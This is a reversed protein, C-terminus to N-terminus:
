YLGSMTHFTSHVLIALLFMAASASILITDRRSRASGQPLRKSLLQWLIIAYLAVFCGCLLTEAFFCGLALHVASSM